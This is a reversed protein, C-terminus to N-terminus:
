LQLSTPAVAGKPCGLKWATTIIKSQGLPSSGWWTRPTTFTRNTIAATGRRIGTIRPPWPTETAFRTRTAGPASRSHGRQPDDTEVIGYLTGVELSPRSGAVTGGGGDAGSGTDGLATLAPLLEAPTHTTLQKKGKRPRFRSGAADNRATGPTPRPGRRCRPNCTRRPCEHARKQCGDPCDRHRPERCNQDGRARRTSPEATASSASM